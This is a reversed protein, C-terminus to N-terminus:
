AHEKLSAQIASQTSQRKGPDVSFSLKTPKRAATPKKQITTAPRIEQVDGMGSFRFAGNVMLTKSAAIDNTKSHKAIGAFNEDFKINKTQELREYEEKMKIAAIAENEPKLYVQLGLYWTYITSIENKAIVLDRISDISQLLKLARTLWHYYLGEVVRARRLYLDSNLLDVARRRLCSEFYRTSNKLLQKYVFDSNLFPSQSFVDLRRVARLNRPLDSILRKRMEYDASVVEEQTDHVAKIETDARSLCDALLQILRGEEM